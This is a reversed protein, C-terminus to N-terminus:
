GIYIEESVPDILRSPESRRDSGLWKAMAGRRRDPGFYGPVEVFGRRDRCISRVRESLSKQSFPLVLFEDVGADRVATVGAVTAKEMVAVIPLFPHPFAERNRVFRCLQLSENGHEAFYAFLIDPAGAHRMKALAAKASDFLIVNHIGASAAINKFISISYEDAGVLMAALDDFERSATGTRM